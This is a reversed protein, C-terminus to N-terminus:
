PWPPSPANAMIKSYNANYRTIAEDAKQAGEPSGGGAAYQLQKADSGVIGVIGFM